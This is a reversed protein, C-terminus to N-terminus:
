RNHKLKALPSHTLSHHHRISFIMSSFDSQNQLTAFNGANTSCNSVNITLTNTHTNGRKTNTNTEDRRSVGRKCPLIIGNKKDYHNKKWCFSGSGRPLKSTLTYVVTINTWLHRINTSSNHKVCIKEVHLIFRVTTSSSHDIVRVSLKQCSSKANM